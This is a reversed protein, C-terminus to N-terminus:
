AISDLQELQALVGEDEWPANGGRFATTWLMAASLVLKASGMRVCERGDACRRVVELLSRAGHPLLTHAFANAPARPTLARVHLSAPPLERLTRQAADPLWGDGDLLRVISRAHMRQANVLVGQAGDVAASGIHDLPVGTEPDATGVLSRSVQAPTVHRQTEQEAFPLPTGPGCWRRQYWGMCWLDDCLRAFTRRRARSDLAQVVALLPAWLQDSCQGDRLMGRLLGTATHLNPLAARCVFRAEDAWRALVLEAEERTPIFRLIPVARRVAAVDLAAGAAPATQNHPLLSEVGVCYVAWDGGLQLPGLVLHDVAHEVGYEDSDQGAFPQMMIPDDNACSHSMGKRLLEGPLYLSTATVTAFSAPVLTTCTRRRSPRSGDICRTRRGPRAHTDTGALARCMSITRGWPDTTTVSYRTQGHPCDNYARPPM